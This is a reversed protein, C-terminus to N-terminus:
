AQGNGFVREAESVKSAAIQRKLVDIYRQNDRHMKQLTTARQKLEALEARLKYIQLEQAQIQEAETM